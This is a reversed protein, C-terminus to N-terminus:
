LNNRDEEDIGELSIERTEEGSSDIRVKIIDEPFWKEAKQAWEIVTVAEGGINEWIGLDDLEGLDEIRYLDIHVFPPASAYETVITFSASVVDREEVGFARAIGKVMTTKGSGLEGYLGVVDGPQLLRGLRLGIEKTDDPSKSRYQKM